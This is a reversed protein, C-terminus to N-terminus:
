LSCVNGKGSTPIRPKGPIYCEGYREDRKDRLRQIREDERIREQNTLTDRLKRLKTITANILKTNDFRVNNYIRQSTLYYVMDQVKKSPMATTKYLERWNVQDDAIHAARIAASEIEWGSLKFKDPFVEKFCEFMKKYAEYYNM